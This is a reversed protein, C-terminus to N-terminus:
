RNAWHRLFRPKREADPYRVQSQWTARKQLEEQHQQVLMHAVSNILM